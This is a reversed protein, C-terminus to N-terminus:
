WRAGLKNMVRDAILDLPLYYIHVAYIAAPIGTVITLLLILKLGRQTFAQGRTRTYPVTTFPTIEFRRVLDEPRRPTNNLVELLVILALGALIGVFGGGGAILVRNPKTPGSPVAPQEIVSIRQGRSRTEIRDGTQAKSLREEADNFQTQVTEYRRELEELTITVEPTRSITDNLSDLQAQTEERQEELVSLHSDIETLQIDLLNPPAPAGVEPTEPERAAELLPDTALAEEVIRAKLRSIRAQLLKVRPNEASFIVLAESLEANLAELRQEQPSAQVPAAAEEPEPQRVEGTQEFLAVLQERQRTLAKSDREVQSLTAQMMSQQTLRFELSEPLADANSQKYTLIRASQEDLEDSLREVEQNFFQLTEGARGRRFETDEQQILTLYENLVAAANRPSPAEFTVTMLPIINRRGKPLEITTRARMAAVIEDPNMKKLDPFIELRRAIDLMNDRTLLKQQMIKLQELPPTQVTSSALETPIQPSEVILQMRSEYAPPLTMAVTVTIASIVTTIVMFWPLRRMFLSMYYKIDDM